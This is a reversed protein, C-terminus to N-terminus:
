KNENRNKLLEERKEGTVISTTIGSHKEKSQKIHKIAEFIDQESISKETKNLINILSKIIVNKIDGGSFGDLKEAIIDFNLLERGPVRKSLMLDMIKKRNNISPLKFEIHSLIRRLFAQDYDGFNNTAFIIINNSAELEVLLKSKTRNLEEISGQDSRRRSSLLDDAEDLFLICNEKKSLEFIETLNQCTEGMTSSILDSCTIELIQKKFEYALAEACISKGTGPLGYFNIINSNQRNNDIKNLEWHNYLLDSYKIKNLCDEIEKRTEPELIINSLTHKPEKLFKIKNVTAKVENPKHFEWGKM